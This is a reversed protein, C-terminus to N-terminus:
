WAQDRHEDLRDEEHRHCVERSSSRKVLIFRGSPVFRERM